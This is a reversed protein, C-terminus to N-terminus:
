YTIIPKKFKKDDIKVGTKLSKIIFDGRTFEKDLTMQVTRWVLYTKPDIYYEVYVGVTPATEELVWWTRDNWKENKRIALKSDHMNDGDATSLQRKWDYFNILELNAGALVNGMTDNSFRAERVNTSGSRVAYITKGDTVVSVSNDDSTIDIYMQNPSKFGGVMKISLDGNDGVLTSQMTFTATGLDKYAKRMSSLLDEVEKSAAFSTAALALLALAAITRKM